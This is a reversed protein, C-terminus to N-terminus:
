ADHEMISVVNRFSIDDGLEVLMGVGITEQSREYRKGNLVLQMREDILQKNLTEVAVEM